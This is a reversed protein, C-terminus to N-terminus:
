FIIERHFTRYVAQIIRELASRPPQSVVLRGTMGLPIREVNRFDMKCLYYAELPSDKRDHDKIETAIEGGFRSSFPSGELDTRNFPSVERVALGISKGSGIPFWVEVRVGPSVRSIDNEPVLGLIECRTECALKGVVAGKGPSFGPQLDQVLDTVAGAFPAKWELNAIDDRTHKIDDTAQSLEIYRLHLKSLDEGTNEIISIQRKILSLEMEKDALDHNLREPDLRLVTEGAHVRDGKRVFVESVLAEAPVVIQRVLASELYCPYISNNSWPTVLLFVAAAAILGFVLLGYPRCRMDSRRKILTIAGKAIPRVVFLSFALLGLLVGVTKDFRLYVGIVIGSYLFFRYIFASVGYSVLLSRNGAAAAKSQVSEIGLVRNFFLYRLHNFANTQLNPMRLWDILIFYGDFKMLPNGNFLISSLVSIAVLYFAVSNLLGPMSFYWVYTFFVAVVLESLVGAASISIRSRRDALQWATTTNCYLCPFFLLLAIGMEPVRLGLNKATYAHSFEHVLRASAIAIWLVLLNEFNFFFLFQSALRDIGTFLLYGAGPVFLLFFAATFRNVVLRWLWVTKDLFTDPNILPIYLFYLKFLSRHKAATDLNKRLETQTKSTGYGTSLLLGSRSFQEVLKTAHDGTFHRGHLKLREVAESVSLTGDLINLLEFEYPSIRFFKSAVPDELVISYAGRKEDYSHRMIDPRFRPKTERM